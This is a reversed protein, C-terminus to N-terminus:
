LRVISRLAPLPPRLASVARHVAVARWIRLERRWLLAEDLRWRLLWSCLCLCSGTILHWRAILLSRAIMLHLSWSILRLGTPNLQRSASKPQDVSLKRITAHRMTTCSDLQSIASFATVQLRMENLLASM